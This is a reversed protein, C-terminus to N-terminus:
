KDWTQHGNYFLGKILVAESSSIKSNQRGLKSDVNDSGSETQGETSLVGLATGASQQVLHLPSRLEM